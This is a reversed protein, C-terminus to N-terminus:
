GAGKQLHIDAAPMVGDLFWLPRKLEERFVCRGRGGWRKEHVYSVASGTSTLRSESESASVVESIRLPVAARGM